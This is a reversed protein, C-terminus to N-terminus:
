GLFSKGGMINQMILGYLIPILLSIVLYLVILFGNKGRQKLNEDKWIKRYERYKKSKVYKSWNIIPILIIIPLFWYKNFNEPIPYEWVIRVLLFFDLITFFQILSVILSSTVEAASDKKRKYFDCVRYFIYDFLKM